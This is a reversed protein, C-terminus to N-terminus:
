LKLENKKEKVRRLNFREQKDRNELIFTAAKEGKTFDKFFDGLRSILFQKNLPKTQLTKTFKLKGNHTNLDNIEYRNMFDMIKPTMENKKTRREKIANQLTNIDDDLTLWETVNKKFEIFEENNSNFIDENNTEDEEDEEEESEIENENEYKFTKKPVFTKQYSQKTSQNSTTTQNNFANNNVKALQYFNTSNNNM